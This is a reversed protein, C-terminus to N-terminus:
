RAMFVERAMSQHYKPQVIHLGTELYLDPMISLASHAEHLRKGSLNV